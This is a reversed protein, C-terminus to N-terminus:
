PESLKWVSTSSFDYMSCLTLKRTKKLLEFQCICLFFGVNLESFFFFFFFCLLRLSTRGLYLFPHLIRFHLLWTCLHLGDKKTRFLSHDAIMFAVTVAPTDIGGVGASNVWNVCGSVTASPPTCVEPQLFCSSAERTYLCLSCVQKCSTHGSLLTRGCTASCWYATLLNSM